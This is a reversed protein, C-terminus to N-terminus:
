RRQLLNQRVAGWFGPVVMAHEPCIEACCYCMICKAPEIVPFPTMAVAEAPCNDCCRRCRTCLRRRLVPRRRMLGYFLRILRPVPGHLRRTPLRFGRIREFDGVVEVDDDAIPGLGRGAAISLMPVDSPAIGAM